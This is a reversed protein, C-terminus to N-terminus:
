RAAETQEGGLRHGFLQKTKIMEAVVPPVM